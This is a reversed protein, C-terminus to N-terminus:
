GCEEHALAADTTILHLDTVRYRFFERDPWRDTGVFWGIRGASPITVGDFTRHGSVEVGFPNWGWRGLRDPDGWRDFVFSTSRAAEDLRIRLQIPVTGM